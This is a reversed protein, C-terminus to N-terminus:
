MLDMASQKKKGKEDRKQEKVAQKTLWDSSPEIGTYISFNYATYSEDKTKAASSTRGTTAKIEQLESTLVFSHGDYNFQLKTNKGANTNTTLLDTASDNAFTAVKHYIDDDYFIVSISSIGTEGKQIVVRYDDKHPRIDATTGNLANLVNMTVGLGNNKALVFQNYDKNYKFKAELFEEDTMKLMKAYPFENQCHASISMLIMLLSILVTKKM